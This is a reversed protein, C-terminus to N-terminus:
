LKTLLHVLPLLVNLCGVKLNPVMCDNSGDAALYHLKQEGYYSQNTADVDSSTMALLASGSVNWQLQVGSAQVSGCATEVGTVVALM